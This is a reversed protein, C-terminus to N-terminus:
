SFWLWRCERLSEQVHTPYTELVAPAVGARNGARSGTSGDQGKGAAEELLFTGTLFPRSRDWDPLQPPTGAAAAEQGGPGSGSNTDLYAPLAPCAASFLDGVPPLGADPTLAELTPARIADALVPTYERDVKKGPSLVAAEGFIPNTRAVASAASRATPVASSLQPQQQQQHGSTGASVPAASSGGPLGSATAAQAAAAQQAALKARAAELAARVEPRQLRASVHAPLGPHGGSGNESM